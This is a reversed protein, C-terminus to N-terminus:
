NRMRAYAIGTGALLVLAIWSLLNLTDGFWLYGVISAFLVESYAYPSVRSAASIRLSLFMLYHGMAAFFGMIAALILYHAELSALQFGPFFPIFILGTMGTYLSALNPSAKLSTTKTMFMYIGMLVGSILAFLGPKLKVEADPQIILLVGIFAMILLVGHVYRFPERLILISLLVTVVPFIYLLALAEALPMLAISNFFFLTSAVLVVGRVIQFPHSEVFETERFRLYHFSAIFVLSVTHFFYRYWVVLSVPHDQSLYKATSDCLVMSGAYGMMLLIGIYHSRSPKSDSNTNVDNEM